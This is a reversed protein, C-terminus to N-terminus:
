KWRRKTQTLHQLYGRISATSALAQYLFLYSWFGQHDTALSIHHTQFVHHEQWRRLTNYVILTIPILLMSWWSVILPYGLLALILGPIWFFVYGIDLFPM